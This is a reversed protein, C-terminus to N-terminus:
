VARSELAPLKEAIDEGESLSSQFAQMRACPRASQPRCTQVQLSQLVETPVEDQLSGAGNQENEGAPPDRDHKGLMAPKARDTLVLWQENWRDAVNLNSVPRM